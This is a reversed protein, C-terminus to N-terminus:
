CIGCGPLVAKGLCWFFSLPPVFLSIVLTMYSVVSARVCFFQQLPVVKSRDTPISSCDSVLRGAILTSRM